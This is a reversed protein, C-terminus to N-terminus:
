RELAAVLKPQLQQCSNRGAGTRRQRDPSLPELSKLEAIGNRITRDSIGTALAVTTIGGWGLALAEAAAWRRSGREDLDALIARYKHQISLLNAADQM